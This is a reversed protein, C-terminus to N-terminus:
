RSVMKEASIAPVVRVVAHWVLSLSEGPHATWRGAMDLPSIMRVRKHLQAKPTTANVWPTWTRATLCEKQHRSTLRRSSPMGSSTPRARGPLNRRSTNNSCRARRRNKGVSRAAGCIVPFTREPHYERPWQGPPPTLHSGAGATTGGTPATERFGSPEKEEAAAVRAAEAAAAQDAAAQDAAGTKQPSDPQTQPSRNTPLRSPWHKNQPLRPPKRQRSRKVSPKNPSPQPKGALLKGTTSTPLTPGSRPPRHPTWPLHNSASPASCGIAFVGAAIALALFYTTNRRISM